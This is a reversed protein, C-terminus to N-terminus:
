ASQAVKKRRARVVLYSVWISGEYLLVLPALLVGMSLPDPPTLMAAVVAMGVISVKRYKKLTAPSLLDLYVLVLVIMPFQFAIAFGAMGKIILSLNENLRLQLSIGEPVWANMLYPVILPFIGWYAVGIGACALFCCGIIIIKAAHKEHPRLGPFVFACVQYLIFPFAILAGGYGALKIKVLVIELFNMVTWTIRRDPTEDTVPVQVIADPDQPQDPAETAAPAEESLRALNLPAIPWAMIETLANSIFGIRRFSVEGFTRVDGFPYVFRGAFRVGAIQLSRNFPPPDQRTLFYATDITINVGFWGFQAGQTFSIGFGTDAEDGVAGLFRGAQFAPHAYVHTRRFDAPPDAAAASPATAILCAWAWAIAVRRSVPM